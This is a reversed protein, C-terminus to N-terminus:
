QKGKKAAARRAARNGAPNKMFLMKPRTANVADPMKAMAKPFNEVLAAHKGVKGVLIYEDGSQVSKVTMTNETRKM